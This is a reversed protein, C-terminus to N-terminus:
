LISYSYLSQIHSEHARKKITVDIKAGGGSCCLEGSLGVLVVLKLREICPVACSVQCALM